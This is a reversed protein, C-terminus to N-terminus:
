VLINLKIPDAACEAHSPFVRCSLKGHHRGTAADCSLIRVPALPAYQAAVLDSTAQRGSLWSWVNACGRSRRRSHAPAATIPRQELQACLQRVLVHAHGARECHALSFLHYCTSGSQAQRSLRLGKYAYPPCTCMLMGTSCVNTCHVHM